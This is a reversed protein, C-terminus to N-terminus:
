FGTAAGGNFNLNDVEVVQDKNYTGMGINVGIVKANPYAAELQALTFNTAYAGGGGSLGNVTTVGSAWFKGKTQTAYWTQWGGTITPSNLDNHAFINYYPEYTVDKIVSGDGHLDVVLRFSANGNVTDFASVQRSDYQFGTVTDLDVDPTDYSYRIRSDVDDGTTLTLIGANEVADGGAVASTIEWDVTPTPSGGVSVNACSFSGNNRTQEAYATLSATFSDSMTNNPMSAGDCGFANDINANITGACWAVAVYATTTGTLYKDNGSDLSAISGLNGLTTVGGLADEGTEYAGDGDDLWSFISIHDQLEGEPATDPLEPEMITNEADEGDHAILCAYADNDYVHLSIVNTGFDGPKIDNFNFFKEDELDTEGFLSCQTKFFDDACNGDIVFKYLLGGPNQSVPDGALPKNTVKIELVNVGQVIENELVAGSYSDQGAANYNAESADGGVQVGNLWVTYGNDAAVALDLSAGAIPGYWSFEKRFTYTIGNTTDEALTPDTAWIWDADNEAGDVDATWAPHPQSVVEAAAATEEVFNSADSVIEVDCTNCDVGNYTQKTQDVKLDISGATFINGTSTETDNFFAGTAGIILAAAFVMAGLALLIRKNAFLTAIKM